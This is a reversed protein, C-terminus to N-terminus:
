LPKQLIEQARKFAAPHLQLKLLSKGRTLRQSVRSTSWGLTTAIERRSLEWEFHLELVLAYEAPLSAIAATATAVDTNSQIRYLLDEIM